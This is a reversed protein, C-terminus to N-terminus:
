RAARGLVRSVKSYRAGDPIERQTSDNVVTVVDITFLTTLLEDLPVVDLPPRRGLM